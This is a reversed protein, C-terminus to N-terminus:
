VFNNRYIAAEYATLREGFEQSLLELKRADVLIGNHEMTCLVPILPGEVDQM